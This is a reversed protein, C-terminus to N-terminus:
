LRPIEGMGSNYIFIVWDENEMGSPAKGLDVQKGGFIIRTEREFEGTRPNYWRLIFQGTEKEMNLTGSHIGDPLYIAYVERKKVFVQGGEYYGSAEYTLLDDRPEMEWFPLYTKIFKRAFWTYKWLREHIRFNNLALVEGSIIEIGAGGSFCVPWIVEQRIFQHGSLYPFGKAMHHMDDAKSAQCFEDFFLAVPHGSTTTKARMMETKEGYGLYFRGQKTQEPYYQLSVSAFRQDGIFPYFGDQSWNHVMVPHQYPDVAQIYGAFEKIQEPKLPFPTIDYEESINWQIANHHAFRAAMERYYLKRELGLKGEDLEKKNGEEGEGLVFQINIGKKQAHAFVIEWQRLKALDFHFNDNEINGTRDITGSYPWVDQGDGGINMLLVYISNVKQSSLYNLAGIIGKGKGNEWDPDGEQWDKIHPAFDHFWEPHDPNATTNAFGSYALFNEPSDTGGKLWYKGDGLTKLYFSGEEHVLRGKALFGETINDGAAIRISGKQGDIFVTEGAYPDLNVAINEDKKMTAKYHWDGPEDPTFRVRWVNGSPGGQGDGDFYGPVNFVQGSPGTFFVQLRYALFPNPTNDSDTAEPGKFDIALPHWVKREGTIVPKNDLIAEGIKKLVLNWCFLPDSPHDTKHKDRGLRVIVMNWEPIVFLKQKPWGSRWFTGPPADPMAWEGDSLIGNAFWHYGYSGPAYESIRKQRPSDERGPITRPVQVKTAEKVWKKSILQKGDWNGQNLFLLGFRALERATMNMGGESRNVLIGDIEGYDEWFWAEPDIGINDTINKEFYNALPEGTIKTLVLGFMCMADDWYSYKTGPPFAPKAPTFPTHSGDYPDDQYTGSKGDYGSTMTSFHRLTIKEYEPYEGKLRPEYDAALNDLSCKGQDILLGLCTSTFAKSISAINHLSDIRDGKWIMYGNRIIVVENIGDAGSMSELLKLAVDLKEPNVGQSEPTKEEWGRIPFGTEKGYIKWPSMLILFLFIATYLNKQYNSLM